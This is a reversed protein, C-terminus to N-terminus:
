SPSAVRANRDARLNAAFLAGLSGALPVAAVANYPFGPDQSGLFLFAVFAIFLGTAAVDLVLQSPSSRRLPLKVM